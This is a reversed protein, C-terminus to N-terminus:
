SGGASESDDRPPWGFNVWIYCCMEDVDSFPAVATILGDPPLRLGNPNGMRGTRYKDHALLIIRVCVRQIQRFVAEDFREPMWLVLDVAGHHLDALTDTVLLQSRLRTALARASDILVTDALHVPALLLGITAM